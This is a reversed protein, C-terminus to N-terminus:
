ANSVTTHFEAWVLLVTRPDILKQSIVRRSDGPKPRRPALQATQVVFGAATLRRAATELELGLVSIM